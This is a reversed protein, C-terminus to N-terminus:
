QIWLEIDEGDTRKLKRFTQLKSKPRRAVSLARVLFPTPFRPSDIRTRSNLSLRSLKASTQFPIRQLIIRRDQCALSSRLQALQTMLGSHINQHCNLPLALSYNNLTAEYSGTWAIRSLANCPPPLSSPFLPGVLHRQFLLTM